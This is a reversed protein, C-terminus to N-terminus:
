FQLNIFLKSQFIFNLFLDLCRFVNSLTKYNSAVSDLHTLRMNFIMATLETLSPSRWSMIFVYIIILNMGFEEKNKVIRLLNLQNIM